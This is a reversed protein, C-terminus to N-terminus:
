AFLTQSPITKGESGVGFVARAGQLRLVPMM